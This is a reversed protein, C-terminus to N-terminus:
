TSLGLRCDSPLQVVMPIAPATPTRWVSVQRTMQYRLLAWVHPRVAKSVPDCCQRGSGNHIALKKDDGFLGNGPVGFGTQARGQCTRLCRPQKKIYGLFKIEFLAKFAASLVKYLNHILM